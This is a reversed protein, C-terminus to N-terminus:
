LWLGWGLLAALMSFMSVTGVTQMLRDNDKQKQRRAMYYDDRRDDRRQRWDALRPDFELYNVYLEPDDIKRVAPLNAATRVAPLTLLNNKM